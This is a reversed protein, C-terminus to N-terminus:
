KRGKKKKAMAKRLEEQYKKDDTGYKSGIRNGEDDFTEVFVFVADQPGCEKREFDYYRIAERMRHRAKKKLALANM